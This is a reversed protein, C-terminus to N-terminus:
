IASKTDSSRVEACLGGFGVLGWWWGEVVARRLQVGVMDAVDVVGATDASIVAGSMDGSVEAGTSV